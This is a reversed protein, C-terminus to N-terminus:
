EVATGEPFATASVVMTSAINSGRVEFFVKYIDVLEDLSTVLYRSSGGPLDRPNAVSPKQITVHLDEIQHIFLVEARFM